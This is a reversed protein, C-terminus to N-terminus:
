VVALSELTSIYNHFISKTKRLCLASQGTLHRPRRGCKALLMLWAARWNTNASAPMRLVDCSHG